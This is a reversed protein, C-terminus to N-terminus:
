RRRDRRSAANDSEEVRQRELMQQLLGEISALREELGRMREPMAANEAPRSSMMQMHQQMSQMHEHMLREREAADQAERIRAMQGQMARMHAHMDATPPTSGAPDAPAAHQAHDSHQASPADNQAVVSLPAAFMCITLVNRLTSM